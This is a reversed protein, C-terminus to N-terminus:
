RGATREIELEVARRIALGTAQWISAALDAALAPPAAATLQKGDVPDTMRFFVVVGAGDPDDGYGVEIPGRGVFAGLESM